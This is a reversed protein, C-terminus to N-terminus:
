ETKGRLEDLTKGSAVTVNAYINVASWGTVDKAWKNWTTQMGKYEVFKYDIITAASEPQNKITVIDGVNLLGQDFMESTTPLKARKLQDGGTVPESQTFAVKRKAVKALMDELAMPPIIRDVLLFTKDVHALPSIQICTIDVSNKYLWACASKVEPDFGSAVLIIRQSTNFNDQCKNEKLFEYVKKSAYAHVDQGEIKDRQYKLLYPIYVKEILEEPTTIGAFSSAYRIAQMEFAEVRARCDKPDRKIEIAVICGKADLAVLDCEGKYENPVQRGVQLLSQADSDGAFLVDLNGDLFDEVQDETLQLQSFTRQEVPLEAMSIKKGSDVLVSVLKSGEM